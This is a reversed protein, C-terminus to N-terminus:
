FLAFAVATGHDKTIVKNCASYYCIMDCFPIHVYLSLPHRIGRARVSAVAQLYNGIGFAPPATSSSEIRVSM